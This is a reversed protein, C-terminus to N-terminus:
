AVRVPQVVLRRFDYTSTGGSVAVRFAVQVGAALGNARGTAYGTGWRAATAVQIFSSAIPAINSPATSDDAGVFSQTDAATNSAIASAQLLWDGARPLTFSPGGAINGWSTAWTATGSTAVAVPTGGVFEWKYASSSGANYRFRWQYTPNTVSDVLIAEQGDTPSAPLSTGYSPKQALANMHVADLPTTGDIFTISM